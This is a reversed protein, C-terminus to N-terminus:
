RNENIIELLTTVVEDIVGDLFFVNAIQYPFQMTPENLEIIMGVKKTHIACVMDGVKM